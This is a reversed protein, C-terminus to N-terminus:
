LLFVVLLLARGVLPRNTTPTPPGYVPGAHAAPIGTDTALHGVGLQYLRGSARDAENHKNKRTSFQFFDLTFKTRDATGVSPAGAPRGNTM